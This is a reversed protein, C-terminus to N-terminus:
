TAYRKLDDLANQLAEQARQERQNMQAIESEFADPEM